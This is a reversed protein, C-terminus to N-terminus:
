KPTHLKLTQGDLRKKDNEHDERNIEARLKTKMTKQDAVIPGKQVEVKYKM